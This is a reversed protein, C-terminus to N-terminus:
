KHSFEEITEFSNRQNWVCNFLKKLLLESNVMDFAKRLDVTIGLIHKKENLAAYIYEVFDLVADTTNKKQQFGFQKTSIIEFKNM